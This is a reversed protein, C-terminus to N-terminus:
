PKPLSITFRTPAYNRDLRIDGSHRQMLSQALSLGIGLSNSGKTTYFPQFIFPEIMESVGQGNDEVDIFVKHNEERVNVNIKKEAQHEVADLANFLVAHFVEKLQSENGICIIEPDRITLQFDINEERIRYNLHNIIAELATKVDFPKM